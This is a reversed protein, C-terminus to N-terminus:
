MKKNVTSVFQDTGISAHGYSSAVALKSCKSSGLHNCSVTKGFTANCLNGNQWRRYFKKEGGRSSRLASMM